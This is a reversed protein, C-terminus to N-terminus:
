VFELIDKPSNVITDAGNEILTERSRFGWTVSICDMGVNKATAIDVESDGIYVANEKDAGLESLAKLVADPAPKRKIQPTEGIAVDIIGNFYERNLDKVAFDIKNSVIAMNIGKEHLTDILEMIGDYPRTNDRSHDAYYAKFEGLAKEFDKNESGNPVCLEMLVRIGNGVFSRVQETTKQEYGLAKMAHNVAAALDDLTNLLTGDLDFIITNYKKM